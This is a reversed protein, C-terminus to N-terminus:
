PIATAEATPGPYPLLTPTPCPAPYGGSGCPTPAPQTPTYTPPPTITPAIETLSSVFTQAPVDFYFLTGDAAQLTLRYNQEAIIRVSGAKIPTDIFRGISGNPLEWQTFIVGQEPDSQRAGAFVAAWAGNVQQQWANQMQYGEKFFDTTDEFIGTPRIATAEPVITKIAERTAYWDPTPTNDPTSTNSLTPSQSLTPILTPLLALPTNVRRLIFAMAVIMILIAVIGIVTAAIEFWYTTQKKM